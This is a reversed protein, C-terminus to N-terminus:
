IKAAEDRVKAEYTCQLRGSMFQKVLAELICRLSKRVADFREDGAM